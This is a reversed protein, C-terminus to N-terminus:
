KHKLAVRKRMRPRFTDKLFAPVKETDLEKRYKERVNDMIDILVNLQKQSMENEYAYIRLYTYIIYDSVASTSERIFKQIRDFAADPNLRFLLLLHFLREVADINEDLIRSVSRSLKPNGLHDTM